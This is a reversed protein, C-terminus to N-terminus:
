KNKSRGFMRGLSGGRLPESLWVDQICVLIYRWRKPTSYRGKLPYICLAHTDLGRLELLALVVVTLSM